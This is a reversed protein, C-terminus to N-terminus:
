GFAVWDYQTSKLNLSRATDLYDGTEADNVNHVIFGNATFTSGSTFLRPCDRDEAYWQSLSETALQIMHFVSIKNSWHSPQKRLYVFKPTFGVIIERRSDNNGSNSQGTYSGTEIKNSWEPAQTAIAQAVRLPSMYVLNSTGSEAQAQTAIAYNQVSGLGIDSKTLAVAGTKGAVSQVPSLALIAQKVRLPTMDTTNDTGTEAQAQTSISRNAQAGTAINTLKSREADTMFRKNTADTIDGAGHGHNDSPFTSPKGFITSWTPVVNKQAGAEIGALKNKEATTFDETSLGKGVVIDAKKAMETDLIDMNENLDDIDVIDTGNPKKLNLNSTYKM